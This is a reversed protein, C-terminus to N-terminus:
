NPEVCLVKVLDELGNPEPKANRNPRVSIMWDVNFGVNIQLEHLFHFATNPKLASYKCESLDKAEVCRGSMSQFVRPGPEAKKPGPMERPRLSSDTLWLTMNAPGTREAMAWLSRIFVGRPSDERWIEVRARDRAGDTQAQGLDNMWAPDYELALNKVKYPSDQRFFPLDGFGPHTQFPQLCLLDQKPFVKSFHDGGLVVFHSQNGFLTNPDEEETIADELRKYHRLMLDRSEYSAMWLGFDQNYTSPNGDVRGRLPDSLDQVRPAVLGLDLPGESDAEGTWQAGFIQIGPTASRAAANWISLRLETPLEGFMHFRGLTTEADPTSVPSSM